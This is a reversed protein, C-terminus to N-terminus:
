RACVELWDSRTEAMSPSYTACSCSMAVVGAFERGRAMLPESLTRLEPGLDGVVAEVVGLSLDPLLDLCRDIDHGAWRLADESPVSLDHLMGLAKLALEVAM